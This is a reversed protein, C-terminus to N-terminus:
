MKRAAIRASKRIEGEESSFEPLPRTQDDNERVQEPYPRMSDHHSVRKKGNGDILMYTNKSIQKQVTMPGKYANKLARFTTGAPENTHVLVKQGEKYHYQIANKNYYQRSREMGIMTSKLLTKRIEIMRHYLDNSYQNKDAFYNSSVTGFLIDEPLKAHRGQLAFFASIHHRKRVSSNLALTILGVTKYWTEPNNMCYKRLCNKLMKNASEAQGNAEKRYPISPIRYIGLANYTDKLVNSAFESGQDSRIQLPVGIYPIIRNILVEVVNKGSISTVPFAFIFSTFCDIATLIYAYRTGCRINDPLVYTYDLALVDGPGSVHQPGIKAKPKTLFRQNCKSCVPCTVVFLKSQTYLDPFFYRERLKTVLKLVGIHGGSTMQHTASIIETTVNHPVCILNEHSQSWKNFWSIVVCDNEDISLSQWHKIYKDTILDFVGQPKKNKKLQKKIFDLTEDEDQKKALYKSTYGTRKLGDEGEEQPAKTPKEANITSILQESKQPIKDTYGLTEVHPRETDSSEEEIPHLQSPQKKM